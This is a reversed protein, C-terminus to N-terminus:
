WLRFGDPFGRPIDGELRAERAVSKWGSWTPTRDGYRLITRCLSATFLYGEQPGPAVPPSTLPGPRHRGSVMRHCRGHAGGGHPGPGPSPPGQRIWPGVRGGARPICAKFSVDSSRRAPRRGTAFPSAVPKRHVAGQVAAAIPQDPSVVRPTRSLMKWGVLSGGPGPLHELHLGAPRNPFVLREVFLILAWWIASALRAGLQGHESALWCCLSISSDRGAAPVLTSRHPGLSLASDRIDAIASPSPKQENHEGPRLDQITASNLLDGSDSRLSPWRDAAGNSGADDPAFLACWMLSGPVLAGRSGPDLLPRDGADGAPHACLGAPTPSASFAFFWCGGADNESMAPSRSIVDATGATQVWGPEQRAHARVGAPAPEDV